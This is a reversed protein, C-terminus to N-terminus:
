KGYLSISCSDKSDGGSHAHGSVSVTYEGDDFAGSRLATEVARKVSDIQMSSKSAAQPNNTQEAANIDLSVSGDLVKATGTGSWSM